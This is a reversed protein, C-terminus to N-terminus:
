KMNGGLQVYDSKGDDMEVNSGAIKFLWAFLIIWFILFVMFNGIAKISEICLRVFMGFSEFVRAYFLTYFAIVILFFTNMSIFFELETKNM